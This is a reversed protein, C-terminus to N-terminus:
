RMVERTRVATAHGYAFPGRWMPWTEPKPTGESMKARKMRILPCSTKITDPVSSCPM